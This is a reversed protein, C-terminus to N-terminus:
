NLSIVPPNIRVTTINDEKPNVANLIDFVNIIGCTRNENDIVPLCRIGCTLMKRIAASVPQNINITEVPSTMIWKIKIKLTAQDLPRKFNKFTPNLYPSIGGTIDSRSVIGEISESNGSQVLLYPTNKRQMLQVAEELTQEPKLFGADQRMIKKVPIDRIDRTGVPQEAPTEITKTNDTQTNIKREEGTESTQGPSNKEPKKENKNDDTNTEQEKKDTTQKESDSEQRDTDQKEPTENKDEQESPQDTDGPEFINEPFVAACNLVPYSGVKLQYIDATVTEEPKIKFNEETDRFPKGVFTDTQKFHGHGALEERFTRDWSGVLLNGLEGIADESENATEESGTQCNEIIKKEPLMVVIGSLVFLANQDLILYFNGDMVGKASITNVSCLNKFKRNLKGVPKEVTEKRECTINVQFMAAIDECFTQFAAETLEIAETKVNEEVTSM